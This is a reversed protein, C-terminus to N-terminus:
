SVSREKMGPVVRPNADEPDISVAGHCEGGAPVHCNVGFVRGQFRAPEINDRWNCDPAM